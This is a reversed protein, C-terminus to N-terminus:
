PHGMPMPPQARGGGPEATLRIAHRAMVLEEDTAEVRVEVAAGSPSIVPSHAANAAEDVTVGLHALRQVIGARVAASREGIGATFVLADLGGLVTSLAAVQKAVGVEFAELALAAAADGGDASAELDRVDASTGSLGLLGSRRDVLAEIEDVGLGHARQLHVLVGPDLDGTRTGMVVGGAPTLGMTTDVGLGDRVAALSAGSGLHALVARAGLDVGLHHVLHEYSLGHFGYRRVGAADYDAPIPLRRAVPPLHRHFATDLCAVQPRDPWVEGAADLVALEVPLHLPAFPRAAELRARVAEDVAAHDVQDPGGHVIRHALVDPVFGSAACEDVIARLAALHGGASGVRETHHSAVRRPEAGDGAHVFAAAKLSSSGANLCLVRVVAPPNV